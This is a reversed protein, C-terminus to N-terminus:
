RRNLILIGMKMCCENLVDEERRFHDSLQSEIKSLENGLELPWHKRALRESAIKKRIAKLYSASELDNTQEELWAFRRRFEEHEALLQTIQVTVGISM